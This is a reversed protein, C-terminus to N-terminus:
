ALAQNKKREKKEEEEEQRSSMRSREGELRRAPVPGGGRRHVEEEFLM